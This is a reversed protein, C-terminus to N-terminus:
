IDDGAVVLGREIKIEWIMEQLTKIEDHVGTWPYRIGNITEGLQNRMQKCRILEDELQELIDTTMNIVEM